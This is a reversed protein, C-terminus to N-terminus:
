KTAGEDFADQMSKLVGDVDSKGAFLNQNGTLLADQVKANPWLVNPFVSTRDEKQFKTISSIDAGDAAPITAGDRLFPVSGVKEAYLISSDNTTLFDLFKKALEPNKAKSNVGYTGGYAVPMFTESADDTAPLAAFVLKADKAQEQIANIASNVMVYGAADGSAVQSIAVDYSTGLPSKSFCGAKDMQMTQDFSEKWGSEAFTTKHALLDKDLNPNKGYGLTSIFSYPVMQGTWADSLGLAFAVKGADKAKTCLALVDSFTEPVKAGLEELTGENYTAGIGNVTITAIYQKGDVNNIDQVSQPQEKAWSENSLDALYGDPALSKPSAPSQGSFLYLVDAATGAALQTRIVTAPDKDYTAKVKVGKNAAEFKAIVADLGARESSNGTITLTKSDSGAGGSCGALGLALLTAGAAALTVYKKTNM